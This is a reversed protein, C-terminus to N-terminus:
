EHEEWMWSYTSFSYVKYRGYEEYSVFQSIPFLIEWSLSNCDDPMLHFAVQEITLHGEEIREERRLIDKVRCSGKLINTHQGVKLYFTGKCGQIKKLSEALVGERPDTSFYESGALVYSGM